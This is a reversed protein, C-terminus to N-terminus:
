HGADISLVDLCGIKAILVNEDCKVTVKVQRKSQLVSM